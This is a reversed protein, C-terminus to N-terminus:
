AKAILEYKEGRYVTGLFEVQNELGLEDVLNRLRQSYENTFDPGAILLRYDNAFHGSSFAQVLLDVGKKPHLRGLYSFNKSAQLKCNHSRKLILQM